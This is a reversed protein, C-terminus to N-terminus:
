DSGCSGSTKKPSALIAASSWLAPMSVSDNKGARGINRGAQEFGIRFDRIGHAILLGSHTALFANWGATFAERMEAQISDGLDRIAKKVKPSAMVEEYIGQAKLFDDFDSGRHPTPKENMLPATSNTQITPVIPREGILEGFVFSRAVRLDNGLAQWDSAIAQGDTAM